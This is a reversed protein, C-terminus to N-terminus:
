RVNQTLLLDFKIIKAEPPVDDIHLAALRSLLYILYKALEKNQELIIRTGIRLSKNYFCSTSNSGRRTLDPSADVSASEFLLYISIYSIQNVKPKTQGNWDISSERQTAILLLSCKRTAPFRVSTLQTQNLMACLGFSMIKTPVLPRLNSRTTKSFQIRKM